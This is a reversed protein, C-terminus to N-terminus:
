DGLSIGLQRATLVVDSDVAVRKLEKVADALPVSKIQSGQLAVM